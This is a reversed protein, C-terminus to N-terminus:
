HCQCHLTIHNVSRFKTSIATNAHSVDPHQILRRGDAETVNSPPQHFLEPLSM